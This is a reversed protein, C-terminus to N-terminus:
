TQFCLLSDHSKLPTATKMERSRWEEEKPSGVTKSRPAIHEIVMELDQQLDLQRPQGQRQRNHYNHDEGGM